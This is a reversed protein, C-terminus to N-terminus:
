PENQIQDKYNWPLWDSPNEYVKSRNEQLRTLYEHGSIGANSCTLLLSMIVDGTLAGQMSKYHLSNKRHVITKKIARETEANSLPIGEKETFLTLKKWRTLIYKLAKGLPSNPECKKENQLDDMMEKVKELSPKSTEQHYKLREEDSLNNEKVYADNEYVKDIEDLICSVYPNGAEELEFLKRRGHDLCNAEVTKFDDGPNNDKSGDCMQKPIDLVDSRHKLVSALNEGALKQGTFVLSITKDGKKSIIMSSRTSKRGKKGAAADEKAQKIVDQVKMKTDDNMLLDGDAAVRILENFVPYGSLFAQRSMQYQSGEPLPIGQLSQIKALRYNPVGFEYRLCAVMANASANADCRAVKDSEIDASDDVTKLRVNEPLPATFIMECTNCVLKQLDYIVLNIPSTGSWSYQPSPAAEKLTGKDCEPCKDGEKLSEHQCQKRTAGPYDNSGNRGKTKRSTNGSKSGKKNGRSRNGKSRTETKVGFMKNLLNLVSHEKNELLGKIYLHSSLLEKFLKIDEATISSSDIRQKVAELEDSTLEIKIESQTKKSKSLVLNWRKGTIM